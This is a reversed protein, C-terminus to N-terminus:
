KVAVLAGYQGSARILIDYKNASKVTMQYYANYYDNTMLDIQYYHKGYNTANKSLKSSFVHSFDSAAYKTLAVNSIRKGDIWVGYQKANKWVKLQATTPVVKSMAGPAPLLKMKQQEQQAPSMSLYLTEVRKKDADTWQLPALKGSADFAKAYLQAYEALEAQTIGNPTSPISINPNIPKVQAWTKSSFLFIAMALLPFVALQRYLATRSVNTKTMMILRKKTLLYSFSAILAPNPSTQTNEILLYQYTAVDQGQAIVAADALFEHNLQLSKKYWWLVPNFWCLAKLVEILLIDYSHKQAVHALEHQLIANPINGQLYAAKNVFIFRGFSYPAIQEPLLVLNATSYPLRTNGRVKQMLIYINRLLRWLLIGSVLMYLGLPWWEGFGNAAITKSPISVTLNETPYISLFPVELAPLIPTYNTFQLGPIVFSLLLGMLLYWRNFRCRNSPALLLRYGLWFLATCLIMKFLYTIM